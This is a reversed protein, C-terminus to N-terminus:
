GKLEFEETVVKLAESYKFLALLDRIREVAKEKRFGLNIHELENLYNEADDINYEDIAGALLKALEIIDAEGAERRHENLGRTSMETERQLLVDICAIFDNYCNILDTFNKRVYDFDNDRVAQEHMVCKNCLEDYGSSSAVGMISHIIVKYSDFDNNKVFSKLKESQEFSDNFIVRLLTIYSTYDNGCNLLGKKVDFGTLVSTLRKYWAKEEMEDARKATDPMLENNKWCIYEEPLLRLLVEELDPISIPKSLYGQFGEDLYIKDCGNATQATLTVVPIKGIYENSGQRMKVLTEHGDMEPMVYDMFIIDYYNSNVLNICEEGSTVTTIDMEYNSLLEKAVFLNVMNDDVVLVRAMPCKFMYRDKNMRTKGTKIDGIPTADAVKQPIIITVSTGIGYDSTFEISGKMNDIINKTILLGLGTGGNGSQTSDTKHNIDFLGQKDKEKIGTGTDEICFKLSINSEDHKIVSTRFTVVGIHTFKCANSLVNYVAQQIRVDDGFLVSPISPDVDSIFEVGKENLMYYTKRILETILNQTSYDSEIIDLHNTEIKAFDILNNVVGLLSVSANTINELNEYDAHELKENHKLVETLGIITNMPTRIEHSIGAMIDNRVRKIEESKKLVKKLDDNQLKRFRMLMFISFAAYFLIFSIVLIDESPMQFEIYTLSLDFVLFFACILTCVNSFLFATAGGINLMHERNKHNTIIFIALCVALLIDSIVLLIEAIIIM